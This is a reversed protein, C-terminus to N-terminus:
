EAQRQKGNNRGKFYSKYKCNVFHSAQIPIDVLTIEGMKQSVIVKYQLSEIPARAGKKTKAFFIFTGCKCRKARALDETTPEYIWM